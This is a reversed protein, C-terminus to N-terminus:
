IDGENSPPRELIIPEGGGGGSPRFWGNLPSDADEDFSTLQFHSMIEDMTPEGSLWFSCGDNVNVNIDVHWMAGDDHVAEVNAGQVLTSLTASLAPNYEGEYYQYQRQKEYACSVATAYDMGVYSYSKTVTRQYVHWDPFFPQRQEQLWIKLATHTVKNDDNYASLLAM